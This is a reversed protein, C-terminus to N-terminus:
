GSAAAFPICPLIIIIICSTFRIFFLNKPIMLAITIAAADTGTVSAAAYSNRCSSCCPTNMLRTYM